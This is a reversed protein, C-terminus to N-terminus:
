ESLQATQSIQATQITPSVDRSAMELIWTDYKEQSVVDVVIPMFTHAQGCLESCQGYYTGEETAKFWTENIRGPMADIKSGFSPIAWAHIVDSATVLVHVTANVPVVVRYDAALLFEQETHGYYELLKRVDDNMSYNLDDIEDELSAPVETGPSGIMNATFEIGEDPYEYTWNWQNGIAKITLDAKPVELQFFLLKVSPIAIVILILVPAATWLVELATNHTTTSPTPNAKRSFKLVIYVMLGVVFVVILAMILHLFTDLWIIDEMVPTVARQFNHGGPVPQGAVDAAFAAGGYVLTGIATLFSGLRM